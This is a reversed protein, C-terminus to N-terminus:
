DLNVPRGKRRDFGAAAGAVNQLQQRLRPLAWRALEKFEPASDLNELMVWHGIMEAKAMAIYDLGEIASFGPRLFGNLTGTGDEYAAYSLERIRERGELSDALRICRGKIQETEERVEDLLELTPSAVLLASTREAADAALRSFAIIEALKREAPPVGAPDPRGDRPHDQMTEVVLDLDNRSGGRFVSPRGDGDRRDSFRRKHVARGGRGGQKSEM